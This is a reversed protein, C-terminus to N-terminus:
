VVGNLVSVWIEFVSKSHIHNFDACVCRRDGRNSDPSVERFRTQLSDDHFGGYPCVGLLLNLWVHRSRLHLLVEHGDPLGLQQPIQPQDLRSPSPDLPELLHVTKFLIAM